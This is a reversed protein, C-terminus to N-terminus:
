DLINRIVDIVSGDRYTVVAVVKDGFPLDEPVGSLKDAKERLAEITTVNLGASRLRDEIEPRAPNVAIGHDTVLVDVDWGPTIVTNVKKMM